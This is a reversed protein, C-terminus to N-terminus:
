EFYGMSERSPQLAVEQNELSNVVRDAEKLDIQYPHDFLGVLFTVRLVDRVREDIIEMEIAGENVLDRLPLVYSDPSRFTCRM